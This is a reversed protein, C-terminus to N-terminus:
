GCDPLLVRVVKESAAAPSAALALCFLVTVLLAALAKKSMINKGERSM